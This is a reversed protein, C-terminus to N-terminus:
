GGCCPCLRPVYITLTAGYKTFEFPLDGLKGSKTPETKHAVILYTNAENPEFSAEGNADTTREYREDVGPSLTAGRPIFAVREGALPKGEYLLRVTIPSGPGMPTVPNVVPVLELDHGLPKDFGPNDFSVRDLSPSVVFFTKASKIAREPAYTMVQDFQHAVMYLGPATAEFPATWYGEQPTYGTDILRNKLDYRHGDPDIVELTANSLSLKGALKFDRHENGHNGLMLDVHVVDGARILNVNTEVWTDHAARDPPEDAPRPDRDTEDHYNERKHHISCTSLM